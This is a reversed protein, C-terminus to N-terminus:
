DNSKSDKMYKVLDVLPKEKMMNSSFKQQNKDWIKMTEEIFRIRSAEGVYPELKYVYKMMESDLLHKHDSHRVWTEQYKKIDLWKAIVTALIFWIVFSGLFGLFHDSPVSLSSGVSSIFSILICTCGTVEVIGNIVALLIRLVPYSLVVGLFNRKWKRNNNNNEHMKRNTEDYTKTFLEFFIDKIDGNREYACWQRKWESYLIDTNNKIELKKKKM